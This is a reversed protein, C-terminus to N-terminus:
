GRTRFRTQSDRASVICALFGATGLYMYSIWYLNAEGPVSDIYTPDDVDPCWEDSYPKLITIGPTLTRHDFSLRSDLVQSDFSIVTYWGSPFTENTVSDICGVIETPLKKTFSLPAPYSKGGAYIWASFM